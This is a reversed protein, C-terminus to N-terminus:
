LKVHERSCGFMNSFRQKFNDDDQRWREEFHFILLCVLGFAAPRENALLADVM